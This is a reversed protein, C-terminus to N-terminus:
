VAGTSQKSVLLLEAAASLTDVASPSWRLDPSRMMPALQPLTVITVGRMTRPTGKLQEAGVAIVPHITVIGVEEDHASAETLAEALARARKAMAEFLSEQDAHGVYLSTGLMKIGGWQKTDILFAGRPSLVLHEVEFPDATARFMRDHLVTARGRIEVAHLEKGTASEASARAKVKVLSDPRRFLVDLVAATALVFLVLGFVPFHTSVGALIAVAGLTPGWWLASLGAARRRAALFAGYRQTYAAQLSQGARPPGEQRAARGLAAM